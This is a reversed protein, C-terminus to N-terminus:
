TAITTPAGAYLSYTLRLSDAVTIQGTTSTFPPRKDDNAVEDYPV